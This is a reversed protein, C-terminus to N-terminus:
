DVGREGRGGDARDGLADPSDDEVVVRYVSGNRITATMRRGTKAYFEIEFTDFGVRFTTARIPQGWTERWERRRSEVADEDRGILWKVVGGMALLGGIFVGKQGSKSLAFASLPSLLTGAVVLISVVNRIM